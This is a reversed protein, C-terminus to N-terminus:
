RFDFLARGEIAKVQFAFMAASAESTRLTGIKNYFDAAASPNAAM